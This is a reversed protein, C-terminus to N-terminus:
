AQAPGHRTRYYRMLLVALAHHVEDVKVDRDVVDNVMELAATPRGRNKVAAAAVDLPQPDPRM